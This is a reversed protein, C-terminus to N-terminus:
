SYMVENYYLMLFYDATITPEQLMSGTMATTTTM